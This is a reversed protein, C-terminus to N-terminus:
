GIVYGIKELFNAASLKDTHANLIWERPKLSFIKNDKLILALEGINQFFFGVQQNLYPSSSAKYVRGQYNYVDQRFCIVPVNASWAEFHALCQSETTGVAIMFDAQQLCALYEEKSYSGYKILNVRYGESICAQEIKKIFEHDNYNKIYLVCNRKFRAGGEAPTWYDPDVGAAWVRLKERCEAVQTGFFDVVWESPCLYTRLESAMVLKDSEFADLFVNPGASLHRIKNKKKLAVAMQLAKTGGLVHVHDGLDSYRKPNYNFM